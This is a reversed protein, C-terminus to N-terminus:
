TSVKARGLARGLWRLVTSSRPFSYGCHPCCVLECGRAFPCGGCALVGQRFSAGCLACRITEGEGSRAPCLESVM